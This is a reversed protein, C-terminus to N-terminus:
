LISKPDLKATVLILTCADLFSQLSREKTGYDPSWVKYTIGSGIGGIEIECVTGDFGSFGLGKAIDTCNIKKVAAVVKEFETLTLEFSYERKTAKWKLSVSDMPISKVSVHISDGYRQFDVSVYNDPIRKSHHFNFKVSYIENNQGFLPSLVAIILLAFIIKIMKM